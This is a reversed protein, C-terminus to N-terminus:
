IALFITVPLSRRHSFLGQALRERVQIAIMVADACPQL